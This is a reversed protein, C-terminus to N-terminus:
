NFRPMPNARRWDLDPLNTWYQNDILSRIVQRDQHLYRIRVKQQAKDEEIQPRSLVEYHTVKINDLDAPIESKELLEPTLHKYADAINGWRLTVEYSRLASRLKEESPKLSDMSMTNCGSVLLLLVPIFPLPLLRRM